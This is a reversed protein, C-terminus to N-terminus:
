GVRDFQEKWFNELRIRALPLLRRKEEIQETAGIALSGVQRNCFDSRDGESPKFLPNRM